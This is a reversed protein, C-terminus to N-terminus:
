FNDFETDKYYDGVTLRLIVLRVGADWMKDWDVPAQYKSIDLIPEYYAM